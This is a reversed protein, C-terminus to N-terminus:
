GHGRAEGVSIASATTMKAKSAKVIGKHGSGTLEFEIPESGNKYGLTYLFKDKGVIQEYKERAEKGYKQEHKEVLSEKFAEFKMQDSM